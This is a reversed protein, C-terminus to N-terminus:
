AGDMSRRVLGSVQTESRVSVTSSITRPMSLTMKMEIRTCRSGTATRSRARYMPSPRAIPIRIRSKSVIEHIAPRVCGTKLTAPFSKEHRSMMRM